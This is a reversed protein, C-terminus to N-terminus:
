RLIAQNSGSIPIYIGVCQNASDTVVWPHNVFTQQVVTQNAELTFYLEREGSYNLWYVKMPRETHNGFTVTATTFGSPSRLDAERDCSVPSLDTTDPVQAPKHSPPRADPLTSAPTSSGNQETVSNLSHSRASRSLLLIAGAFACLGVAVIVLFFIARKSGASKSTVAESDGEGVAVSRRSQAGPTRRKPGPAPKSSASEQIPIKALLSNIRGTLRSLYEEVPPPFANLWQVSRLYYLLKEEAEIDEIRFPIVTLGRDFAHGVERHIHSSLNAHGSFVLVMARCEAIGRM